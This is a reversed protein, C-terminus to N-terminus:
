LFRITNTPSSSKYALKDTDFANSANCLANQAPMDAKALTSWQGEWVTRALNRLTVMSKEFKRCKRHTTAKAIVANAASPIDGAMRKNKNNICTQHTSQRKAYNKREATSRNKLDGEFRTTLLNIVAKLKDLDAKPTGHSAALQAVQQAAMDLTLSQQEAGNDIEVTKRQQVNGTTEMVIKKATEQLTASEKLKSKGINKVTEKPMAKVAIGSQYPETETETTQGIEEEEDTIPGITKTEMKGVQLVSIEVHGCNNGRGHM